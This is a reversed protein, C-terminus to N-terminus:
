SIWITAGGPDTELTFSMKLQSTHPCPNFIITDEVKTFGADTNATAASRPIHLVADSNEPSTHTTFKGKIATTTAQYRCKGGAGTITFEIKKAAESCKGGLVQFEDEAMASTSKLCWPLTGPDITFTLFGTCGGSGGTGTFTATEVNGQVNGSANATLTGTLVASTCTLETAGATSQLLTNGINTGTIKGTSSYATGTPSTLLPNNAAQSVAPLAFAALAVVALCATILKKHM